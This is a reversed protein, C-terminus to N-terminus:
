CSGGAVPPFIAVTDDRNLSTNLGQLHRIDRGNILVICMQSFTEGIFLWRRFSAGYKQCLDQLLDGIMAEPKGWQEHGCGTIGRITAFYQITM